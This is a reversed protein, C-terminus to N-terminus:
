CKGPKKGAGKVNRMIGRAQAAPRQMKAVDPTVQKGGMGHQPTMKNAADIVQSIKKMM